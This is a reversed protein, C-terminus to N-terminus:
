RAHNVFWDLPTELQRNSGKFKVPGYYWTSDRNIYKMKSNTIASDETNVIIVDAYDAVSNLWDPEWMSDQYLFVNYCTELTGNKYWLAIAEIDTWDADILLVSPLAEPALDPPTIFNCHPTTELNNLNLENLTM